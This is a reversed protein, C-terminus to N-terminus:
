YSQLLGRLLESVLSKIQDRVRRFVEIDGVDQTAPAPDELDWHIHRAGPIFPCSEKANGCLTVVLDLENLPIEDLSKSHLGETELGDERLAQITLPHVYGKPAAGASYVEVKERSGKLLHRAYAEAMQSRATNGTCIFGVKM